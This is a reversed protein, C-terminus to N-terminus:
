QAEWDKLRIQPIVLSHTCHDEPEYVGIVVRSQPLQPGDVPFKALGSPDRFPLNTGFRVLSDPVFLESAGVDIGAADPHLIPLEECRKKSRKAM